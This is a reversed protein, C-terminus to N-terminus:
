RPGAAWVANRPTPASGRRHRQQAPEGSGANASLAIILTTGRDKNRSVTKVASAAAVIRTRSSRAANLRGASTAVLAFTPAYRARLQTPTCLVRALAHRHGPRLSASCGRAVRLHKGFRARVLIHAGTHSPAVPVRHGARLAQRRYVHIHTIRLSASARRKGAGARPSSPTEALATVAHRNAYRWM